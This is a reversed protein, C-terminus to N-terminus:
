KPLSLRLLIQRRYRAARMNDVLPLQRASVGAEFEHEIRQSQGISKGDGLESIAGPERQHTQLAFEIRRFATAQQRAVVLADPRSRQATAEEIIQLRDKQRIESWAWTTVM